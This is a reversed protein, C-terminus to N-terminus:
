RNNPLGSFDDKEPRWQGNEIAGPVVGIGACNYACDLDALLNDGLSGRAYTAPGRHGLCV